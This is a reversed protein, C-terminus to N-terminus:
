EEVKFSVRERMNGSDILPQSSGKRAITSPANPTFNGTGIMEQMHGKAQNGILELGQAVSMGDAVRREVGEALDGWDGTHAEITQRMFPRAPIRSTGFENKAAVEAVTIGSKYAGSDSFYGVSVTGDLKCLNDIIVRYGLDVDTVAM